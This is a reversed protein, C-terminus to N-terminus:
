WLLVRVRVHEALEGLLDRLRKAHEDRTLGFDATLHWGAIDISSRASTLEAAIRPLAEAGDILVELENGERVPPDGSAWRSGAPPDLRESQGNRALRRRHHARVTSEVGAGVHADITESLPAM